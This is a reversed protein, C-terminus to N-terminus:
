KADKNRDENGRVRRYLDTCIALSLVSVALSFCVPCFCLHLSFSRFSFFCRKVNDEVGKGVTCRESRIREIERDRDTCFSYLSHTHVRTCTYVHVRTCTYVHVCVFIPRYLCLSIVIQVTLTVSIRGYPYSGHGQVPVSRLICTCM